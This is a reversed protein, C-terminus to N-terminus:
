VKFKAENRLWWPGIAPLVGSGFRRKAVNGWARTELVEDAGEGERCRLILVFGDM